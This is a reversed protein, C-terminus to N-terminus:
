KGMEVEDIVNKEVGDWWGGGIVELGDLLEREDRVM